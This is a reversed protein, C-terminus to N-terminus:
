ALEGEKIEEKRPRDSPVFVGDHALINEMIMRLRDHMEAGKPCYRIAEDKEHVGLVSHKLFYVIGVDDQEFAMEILCLQELTFVSKLQDVIAIPSLRSGAPQHLLNM